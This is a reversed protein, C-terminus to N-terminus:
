QMHYNKILRVFVWFVIDAENRFSISMQNLLAAAVVLSNLQLQLIISIAIMFICYYKVDNMWQYSNQDNGAVAQEKCQGLLTIETYGLCRRCPSSIDIVGFMEYRREQRYNIDSMVAAKKAVQM